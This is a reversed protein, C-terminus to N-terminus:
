AHTHNRHVYAEIGRVIYLFACYGLCAGALLTAVLSRIKPWPIGGVRTDLGVNITPATHIPECHVCPKARSSILISAQITCPAACAHSTAVVHANTARPVIAKDVDLMNRGQWGGNDDNASPTIIPNTSTLEQMDFSVRVDLSHIASHSIRLEYVSSPLLDASM